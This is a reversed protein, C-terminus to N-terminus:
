THHFNSKPSARVVDSNCVQPSDITETDDVITRASFCEGNQFTPRRKPDSTKASTSSFQVIKPHDNLKAFNIFESFEEFYKLNNSTNGSDSFSCYIKWICKKSVDLFKEWWRAEGGWSSLTSTIFRKIEQPVSM